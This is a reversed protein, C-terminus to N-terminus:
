AAGEERLRRHFVHAFPSAESFDCSFSAPRV